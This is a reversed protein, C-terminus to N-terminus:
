RTSMVQCKQVYLIKVLFQSSSSLFPPINLRVGFITLLDQIELGKNAMIKNGVELKDLLGSRELVM